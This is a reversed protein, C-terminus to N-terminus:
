RATTAATTWGGSACVTRSWPRTFARGPRRRTRTRGTSVTRTRPSVPPRPPWPARRPPRPRRRLRPRGRLDLRPRQAHSAPAPQEGLRSVGQSRPVPGSQLELREVVAAGELRHRLGARRAAGQERPVGTRALDRLREATYAYYESFWNGFAWQPLMDDPGTLTRLDSLAQKYDHGYGFLYGDQYAGNHAPRPAVWGEATRLATTTDDLLYWGSKDLLGQHLQLQDIPGAQGSYYDLGRYWGGLADPHSPSGFAPHVQSTRGDVRMELTTNAPGFPGSGDRYSLRVGSTTIVLEGGSHRVSFAPPKLDRAVANFTPADEFHGDAAYELRLLTATLVEVRVPGDVVVGGNRTVKTAANAPTSWSTLLPALLMALVLVLRGAVRRLPPPSWM